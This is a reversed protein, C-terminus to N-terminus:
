ISVKPQVYAGQGMLTIMAPLKEVCRRSHSDVPCGMGSFPGKRAWLTVLLEDIFRVQINVQIIVCPLLREATRHTPLTEQSLLFEFRMSGNVLVVSRKMAYVALVAEFPQAVECRVHLDMGGLGRVFTCVASSGEFMGVAEFHMLTKVGSLFGVSTFM